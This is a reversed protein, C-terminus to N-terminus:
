NLLKSSYHKMFTLSKTTLNQFKGSAFPTELWNLVAGPKYIMKYDLSDNLFNQETSSIYIKGNDINFSLTYLDVNYTHTYIDFDICGRKGVISPTYKCTTNSLRLSNSELYYIAGGYVGTNMNLLCKDISVKGQNYKYIAGGLHASSKEFITNYAMLNSGNVYLIGGLFSKHNIFISNKININSSQSEIAGGHSNATNNTFNCNRVEVNSDAAFLCGGFMATNNQFHSYEISVVSQQSIYFVAGYRGSNSDFLCTKVSVHCNSAVNVIGGNTGMQNAIFTCNAMTLNSYSIELFSDAPSSHNLFVCDQLLLESGDQCSIVNGENNDHFITQNVTLKSNEAIFICAGIIASNHEFIVNSIIGIANVIIVAGRFGATNHLFSSDQIIMNVNHYINLVSDLMDASNGKFLCKVITLNGQNIKALVGGASIAKNGLFTSDSIYISTNKEAHLVGAENGAFNEKFTSQYINVVTNSATAICGGNSFTARNKNFSCKQVIIFNNQDSLIVGGIYASNKIFQSQLIQIHVGFYIYISGGLYAQNKIFSCGSIYLKNSTALEEKSSNVVSSSIDITENKGSASLYSTPSTHVNTVYIVAGYKGTNGTMNCNIFNGISKYLAIVSTTTSNNNEIKCYELCISSNNTMNIVSARVTNRTLNSGIFYVNSMATAHIIGNTKNSFVDRITTNIFFANANSIKIFSESELETNNLNTYFSNSITLNKPPRYVRESNIDKMNNEFALKFSTLNCYNIQLNFDYIQWSGGIISIFSAELTLPKEHM